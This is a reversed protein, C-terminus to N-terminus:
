VEDGAEETLKSGCFPCFDIVFILSETAYRGDDERRIRNAGFEIEWTSCECGAM